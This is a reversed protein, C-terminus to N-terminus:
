CLLSAHTRRKPSNGRRKSVRIRLRPFVCSETTSTTAFVPLIPLSSFFQKNLGHTTLSVAYMSQPLSKCNTAVVPLKEDNQKGVDAPIWRLLQYQRCINATYCMRHLHQTSLTHLHGANYKPSFHLTAAALLLSPLCQADHPPNLLPVSTQM